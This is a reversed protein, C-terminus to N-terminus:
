AKFSGQEHVEEITIKVKSVHEVFRFLQAMVEPELMIANTAEIGNETTLIIHVGDYIAYVGDGLYFKEM